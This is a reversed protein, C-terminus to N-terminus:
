AADVDPRHNFDAGPLRRSAWGPRAIRRGSGRQIERKSPPRSVNMRAVRRRRAQALV